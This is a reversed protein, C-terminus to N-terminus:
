KSGSNWRQQQIPYPKYILSDVPLSMCARALYDTPTFNCDLIYRNVPRETQGRHGPTFKSLKATFQQLNLKAERRFHPWFLRM